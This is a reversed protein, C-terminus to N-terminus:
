VESFVFTATKDTKDGQTAGSAVIVQTAICWSRGTDAGVVQGSQVMYANDVDSFDAITTAGGSMTSGCGSYYSHSTADQGSMWNGFLGVTGTAQDYSSSPFGQTFVKADAITNSSIGIIVDGGTGL